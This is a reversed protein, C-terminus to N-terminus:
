ECTVRRRVQLRQSRTMPRRYWGMLRGRGRARTVHSLAASVVRKRLGGCRLALLTAWLTPRPSLLQLCLRAGESPTASLTPCVPCRQEAPADAPMAGTVSVDAFFQTAPTASSALAM